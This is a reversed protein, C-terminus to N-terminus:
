NWLLLPSSQSPSYGIFTQASVRTGEEFREVGHARQTNILILEGVQPQVMIPELAGRNRESKVWSIYEAPDRLNSKSYEPVPWVILCGGKEPVSLYINASFEKYGVLEEPPRDIHPETELINENPRTIRILGLLAEVGELRARQTGGPWKEKLFDFLIDIPWGANGSIERFLKLTNEVESSYKKRNPSNPPTGFTQNYPYGIRNVGFTVQQLTGNTDVIDNTYDETDKFNVAWENLRQCDVLPYFEPIRIFYLEGSFLEGLTKTNLQSKSITIQRDM